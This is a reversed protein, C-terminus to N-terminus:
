AMSGLAKAREGDFIIYHLQIELAARAPFRLLCLYTQTQSSENDNQNQTPEQNNLKVNPDHSSSPQNPQHHHRMVIQAKAFSPELKM